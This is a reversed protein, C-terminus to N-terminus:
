IIGIASQKNQQKFIELSKFSNKSNYNGCFSFAVLSSKEKPSEM